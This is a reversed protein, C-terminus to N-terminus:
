AAAVVLIYYLLLPILLATSVKAAGKQGQALKLCDQLQPVAEDYAKKMCNAKGAQFLARRKWQVFIKNDTVGRARLCGMVAGGSNAELANCLM